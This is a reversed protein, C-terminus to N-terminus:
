KGSLDGKQSGRQRPYNHCIKLIGRQCETHVRTWWALQAQNWHPQENLHFFAITLKYIISWYVTVWAQTSMKELNVLNQPVAVTIDQCSTSQLAVLYICKFWCPVCYNETRLSAVAVSEVMVISSSLDTLRFCAFIVTSSVFLSSPSCFTTHIDLFQLM